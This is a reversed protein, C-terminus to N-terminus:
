AKELASAISVTETESAAKFKAGKWDVLDAQFAGPPLPQKEAPEADDEGPAKKKVIRAQATAKSKGGFSPEQVLATIKWYEETKFNEIEREREVVLRVAVSQVRGASLGATIKQRLLPSLKYGVLRDLFRRAEQAAVRDMDINGAKDFAKKVASKTIEN